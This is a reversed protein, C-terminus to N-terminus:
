VPDDGPDRADAAANVEAVGDRDIGPAGALRDRRLRPLFPDIADLGRSTGALAGAAQGLGGLRFAPDALEVAADALLDGEDLPQDLREAVLQDGIGCDKVAVGLRQLIDIEGALDEAM